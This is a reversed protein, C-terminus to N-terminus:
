LHGPFASLKFFLGVFLFTCATHLVGAAIRAIESDTSIIQGVEHFQGTCLSLFVLFVGYLVLGSSLTSLYFYKIGAERAIAATADFFILVYLNLSFGVLALFCAILHSSGILFAMFLLSLVMITTYELLHRRHDELYLGSRILIFVVAYITLLKLATAYLSVVFYGHLVVGVVTQLVQVGYVAFLGAIGATLVSLSEFSLVKKLQTGGLQFALVALAITLLGTLYLEPGFGCAFQSFYSLPSIDTFLPLASAVVIKRNKIERIRGPLTKIRALDTRAKFYRAWAAAIQRRRRM